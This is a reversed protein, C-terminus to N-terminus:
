PSDLTIPEHQVGIYPYVAVSTSPGHAKELLTLADEWKKVIHVRGEPYRIMDRHQFYQSFIILQGAKKLPDRGTISQSAQKEWFSEGNWSARENHYHITFHGLPMQAVFIATGGERMSRRAWEFGTEQVNRPYGNAIVVDANQAIETRYRKNADHVAQRFAEVVDGTYVGIVQRKGNILVQITFDLGALRATDEMDSRLDNHYIKGLGGRLHSHNYGITDLSAVGPLIAKAGGSYGAGGHKKIGSISVRVDAQMVYYNVKVRNGHSTKGLEVFNDFCNHNIWTYKDVIFDGLKARIEQSTAARHSGVICVFLINEDKIGGSKLEEVVVPAIENVPTARTIDDFLIVATKKGAAIERLPKSSIPSNIRNRIDKGSLVPSKYGAMHHMNVDWEKPFDLREEIDGFWEHTNISVSRYRDKDPSKITKALGMGPRFANGVLLSGAGLKGLFERRTTMKKTKIELNNM